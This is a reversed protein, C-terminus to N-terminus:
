RAGGLNEKARVRRLVVPWQFFKLVICFRIDFSFLVCASGGKRGALFGHPLSIFVITVTSTKPMTELTSIFLLSLM